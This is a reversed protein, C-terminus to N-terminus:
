RAKSIFTFNKVNHLNAGFYWHKYIIKRMKRENFIRSHVSDGIQQAYKIIHKDLKLLNLIQTVRAGSIGKIRALESQNKVEGRDIMKKYRKALYFPNRYTKNPTFSKKVATKFYFKSIFTRDLNCDPSKPLIQILKGKTWM